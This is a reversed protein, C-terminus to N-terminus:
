HGLQSAPTGCLFDHAKRYSKNELFHKLRPHLGGALSKELEDLERFIPLLDPPSESKQARVAEFYRELAGKLDELDPSKM